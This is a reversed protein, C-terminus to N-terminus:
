DLEVWEGDIKEELIFINSFDDMLGCKDQLFLLLDASTEAAARMEIESKFMFSKFKCSNGSEVAPFTTLMFNM